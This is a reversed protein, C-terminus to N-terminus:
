SVKLGAAKMMERISHGNVKPHAAAVETITSSANPMQTKLRDFAVSLVEAAVGAYDKEKALKVVKRQREAAVGLGLVMAIEAWHEGFTKVWPWAEGAAEKARAEAILQAALAPDKADVASVIPRSAANDAEEKVKDRILTCGGLVALTLAGALIMKRM